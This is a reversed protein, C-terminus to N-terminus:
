CTVKTSTVRANGLVARKLFISLITPIAFLLVLLYEGKLSQLWYILGMMSLNFAVLILTTQTHSFGLDLMLHHVHNRDAKFPSCGKLTRLIFVRLTDFLPVILVACTFVPVSLVKYQHDRPLIRVSEIFKVALLAVIFGVILSGTDGMFIKAPSRNYYLFALLAGVLCYSLIAYQHLDLLHFWIGFFGAALTGISGALGDIGDILNFANTIVIITFITLMYGYWMPIKGIGFLGFMTQLRIDAFHVLLVAAVLQGALKKWARLEILDDKIGIFFLIILSSIIYQLEVIENQKAWFTVSFILGAFIAMGGLTPINSRHRKRDCPTDFIKKHEAVRIIAPIAFFTIFFATLLSLIEM